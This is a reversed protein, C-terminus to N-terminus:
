SFIEPLQEIFEKKIMDAIERMQPHAAEACRLDFFHLWARLNLTMVIETKLSNPLVSRAIQPSTGLSIMKLYEEEATEMVKTWSIYEQTSLNPPRIFTIEGGFKDKGYNCYRTSEQSYSCGIRHRVIEHTVGRDCIVKVTIAIHELVSDHKRKKIMSVFKSASDETIKDESKYCTRGCRELHKLIYDRDIPTIIEISPKIIKM